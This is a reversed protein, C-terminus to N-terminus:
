KVGVSKGVRASEYIADIMQMLIVGDSAGILPTTKGLICERFHRMLAAHGIVRPPPLATSKSEGKDNFNRHIVSGGTSYVDVAGKDGYIRCLTGQQQPPQNFSWSASLELSKGGEFRLLAFASDEVDMNINQPALDRFKQYTTAFVSQPRPQGLLHWALDLMHVGIDIMAGGGSKEKIPFWGTGVPVGRTRLWQARAHFVEGAYGKAIAQKAAQEAGGFRRQVAYLLVKGSKSAAKEMRRAEAAGLAPPKECIVHKGARLAALVMPAHLYTPLCISVADISKDAILEKADGYEKLAGHEAMLKKRRDPILDAVAALQFGGSQKYGKAHAGGPWGAGAIGVRIAQAM